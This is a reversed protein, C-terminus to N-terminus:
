KGVRKDKRGKIFFGAKKRKKGTRKAAPHLPLMKEYMESGNFRFPDRCDDAIFTYEEKGTMLDYIDEREEQDFPIFNFVYFVHNYFHNEILEYTKMFEGPKTGVVFIRMSKELFSVKNFERERYVGYDYVFFDYSLKMVEPLKDIKYYLDVEQYTVRGLEKDEEVGEYAEALEEVWGHQNMQIYCAKYGNYLLYKVIQIAQTTTGIRSLVGAIGISTIEQKGTKPDAEHKVEGELEEAPMRDNEELPELIGAIAKELAEKKEDQYVGFIFHKVGQFRLMRLIESQEPYGPAYIVPVANNAIQIRRIVDAIVDAPDTYQEIDYVIHSCDSCALIEGAQSDITLAPTIFKTEWGLKKAVETVFYGKEEKGVFIIM